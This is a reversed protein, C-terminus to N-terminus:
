QDPLAGTAFGSCANAGDYAYARSFDASAPRCSEVRLPLQVEEFPLRLEDTFKAFDDNTTDIGVELLHLSALGPPKAYDFYM